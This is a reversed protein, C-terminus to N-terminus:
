RATFLGISGIRADAPGYREVMRLVQMPSRRRDLQRMVQELASLRQESTIVVIQDAGFPERVQVPFRYTSTKLVAPDSGVPYLTQVTGDGAINFMIMSRGAVDAVEIEIKAGRRHLKDTPRIRVTQPSKTAKVKFARIAAARDIISPLDAQEAGYAIVDGGALVDRSKPDWVLDPNDRPSVITFPAELQTVGSLRSGQGDLSAIRVPGAAPAPKTAISVSQAASTLGPSAPTSASPKATPAADVITVARTLQFAVDTEIKRSPSNLTVANQRQDSLQYVVQRVHSFLEKLTVRSDKDADAGGEIARALAYSLAGRMGPVGPIHVEPAKTYRDVAALFATKEFDLETLFADKTTSIPKLDEVAIVYRPVQRYSLEGARPDVERTLGGAYCTDAVFMVRAGRGEFQKILHNFEQGLVKEKAGEPTKPTFNPLLFVKDLHDPQSGRVREPEQAGHGAITLIIFDGARTRQLLREFEQLLGARNVQGDTLKVIDRVGVRRLASDIDLADAVAGKLKPVHRYEDIGVVLARVEGADPGRLIQTQAISGAHPVLALLFGALGSAIRHLVLAMAREAKKM